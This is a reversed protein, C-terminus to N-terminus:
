QCVTCHVDDVDEGAVLDAVWDRLDTGDVEDDYFSPLGLVTHSTGPGVWSHLEVGEAEVLENNADIKTLLDGPQGILGSFTAQVQDYAANITALRLDHVHRGAQVLLRPLTWHAPPPGTQEPWDPLREFVGWLAGIANTIGDDDPYAGSGDALLTISADPLLDHALGAYVPAGASGASSGAVVVEEADPFAEATATLATDANVAGKHHVVVGDGYDQTTDGLHLDGTCYPVFVMSWDAFPNREDDFDFIGAGAPEGAAVDGGDALTPKFTPSTPGCTEASFCAGGGELFYVVREPDARRVWYHYPSGDSCMCEPPAMVQEWPEAVVEEPVSTETTTVEPESTSTTTTDAPAADDDGCAVATLLLAVALLALAVPRRLVRTMGPASAEM